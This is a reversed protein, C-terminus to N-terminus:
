RRPGTLASLGLWQVGLFVAFAATFAVAGPHSLPDLLPASALEFLRWPRDVVDWSNLRFFRGMFVGYACLVCAALAIAHAWAPGLRRRVRAVVVELSTLGLWCGTAAFGVFFLIDFWLPVPPRATLHVLDTVLDPANPLFILWAADAVPSLRKPLAAQATNFFLPVWALFLNWAMFVLARRGVFGCRAALACLCLGSALAGCLVLKWRPWLAENEM